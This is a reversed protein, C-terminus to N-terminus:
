NSSVKNRGLRLPFTNSRPRITNPSRASEFARKRTPISSTRAKWAITRSLVAFHVCGGIPSANIVRFETQALGSPQFHTSDPQIGYWAEYAALILASIRCSYVLSYEKRLLPQRHVIRFKKLLTPNRM